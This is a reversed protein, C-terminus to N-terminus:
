WISPYFMCNQQFNTVFEFFASVLGDSMSCFRFFLFTLMRKFGFFSSKKPINYKEFVTETCASSFIIPVNINRQKQLNLSSLGVPNNLTSYSFYLKKYESAKILKISFKAFFWLFILIIKEALLNKVRRKSLFKVTKLKLEM